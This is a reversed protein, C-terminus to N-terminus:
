ENKDREKARAIALRIIFVVICGILAGCSDLAVDSVQAARGPVYYQHLEDTAAYFICFAWAAIFAGFHSRLATLRFDQRLEGFLLASAVGLMCFELLHAYKRIDHEAGQGSIPPLLAILAKLRALLGDSLEQSSDANQASFVFIAVMCLLTFASYIIIRARHGRNM